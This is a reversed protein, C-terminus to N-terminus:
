LNMCCIRFFPPCFLRLYKPLRNTLRSARFAAFARQPFLNYCQATYPNRGHLRSGGAEDHTLLQIPMPADFCFNTGFVGSKM